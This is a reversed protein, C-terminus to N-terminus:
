PETVNCEFPGPQVIKELNELNIVDNYGMQTILLLQLGAFLPVYPNSFFNNFTTKNMILKISSVKM